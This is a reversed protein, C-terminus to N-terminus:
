YSDRRRRLFSASLIAGSDSLRALVVRAVAPNYYSRFSRHRSLNCPTETFRRADSVSARCRYVFSSRRYCHEYGQDPDIALDRDLLREDIRPAPPLAVDRRNCAVKGFSTKMKRIRLDIPGAIRGTVNSRFKWNQRKNGRNTVFEGANVFPNSAALSYDEERNRQWKEKQEYAVRPM